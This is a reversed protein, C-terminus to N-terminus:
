VLIKQLLYSTKVKAMLTNFAKPAIKFLDAGAM